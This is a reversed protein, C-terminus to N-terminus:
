DCVPVGDQDRKGRKLCEESPGIFQGDPTWWAAARQSQAYRDTECRNLPGGANAATTHGQYNCLIIPWWYDRPNTLIRRKLYDPQKAWWDELRQKQIAMLRDGALVFFQSETYPPGPDDAARAGPAAAALGLMLGAALAAAVIMGRMADERLELLLGSGLGGRGGKDDVRAEDEILCGRM